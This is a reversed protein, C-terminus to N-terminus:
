AERLRFPLASVLVMQGPVFLLVMDVHGTIHTAEPLIDSICTQYFLKAALPPGPRTVNLLLGGPPHMHSDHRAHLMDLVIQLGIAAQQM